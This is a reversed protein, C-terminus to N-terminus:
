IHVYERFPLDRVTRYVGPCAKMSHITEKAREYSAFYQVSSRGDVLTFHVGFVYLADGHRAYELRPDKRIRTKAAM